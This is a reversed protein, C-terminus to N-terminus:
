EARNGTVRLERRQDPLSNTSHTYQLLRNVAQLFAGRYSM